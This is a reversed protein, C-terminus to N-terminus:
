VRLYNLFPSKSRRSSRYRSGCRQRRKEKWVIINVETVREIIKKVNVRPPSDTPLKFLLLKLLSKIFITNSRVYANDNIKL